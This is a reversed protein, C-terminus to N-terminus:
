SNKCGRRGSPSRLIPPLANCFVATGKRRNLLLHFSIHRFLFEVALIKFLNKLVGMTTVQQAGLVHAPKGPDLIGAGDALAVGHVLAPM